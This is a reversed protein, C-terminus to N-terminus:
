RCDVGDGGDDMSSQKRWNPRCRRGHETGAITVIGTGDQLELLPYHALRYHPDEQQQEENNTNNNNPRDQETTTGTNQRRVKLFGCRWWPNFGCENRTTWGPTDPGDDCCVADFGM